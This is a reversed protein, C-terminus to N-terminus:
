LPSTLVGTGPPLDGSAEGQGSPRAGAGGPVLRFSATPPLPFSSWLDPKEVASAPSM